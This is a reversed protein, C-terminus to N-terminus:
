TLIPGSCIPRRIYNLRLWVTQCMYLYSYTLQVTKTKYIWHQTTTKYFIVVVGFIMPSRLTPHFSHM